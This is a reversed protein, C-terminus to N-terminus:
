CWGSARAASRRLSLRRRRSFSQRDAGGPVPLRPRRDGRRSVRERALLLRVALPDAGVVRLGRAPAGDSRRGRACCCRCVREHSRAVPSSSRTRADRARRRRSPDPRREARSRLRGTAVRRRFRTRPALRRDPLRAPRRPLGLAAQRGEDLRARGHAHFTAVVPAQAMALTAICIAPTMPEHLHLVDFGRGSSRVVSRRRRVAALPRHEAALREGPRDRLPRCPDRGAARHGHRGLRPHLVRTFSGPPDNGMITRTELGRRQLAHPRCSPTSSSPGWFSWSYPAVIGVKM